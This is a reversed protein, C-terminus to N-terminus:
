GKYKIIDVVTNNGFSKGIDYGKSNVDIMYKNDETKYVMYDEKSQLSKRKAFMAAKILSDFSSKYDIDKSLVLKEGIYKNLNEM